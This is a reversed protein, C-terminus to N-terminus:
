LHTKALANKQTRSNIVVVIVVKDMMLQKAQSGTVDTQGAVKVIDLVVVVVM